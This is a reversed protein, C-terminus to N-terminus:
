FPSSRPIGAVTAMSAYGMAGCGGAVKQRADRIRGLMASSPNTCNLLPGRGLVLAQVEPQESRLERAARDDIRNEIVFREIDSPSIGARNAAQPLGHGMPLGQPASAIPIGMGLKCTAIRGMLAASPNLSDNLPGRDLVATQVDPSEGKLSAAAKEDLRNELIFRHVDDQTVPGMRPASSPGDDSLGGSNLMQIAKLAEEQLRSDEITALSANPASSAPIALSSEQVQQGQLSPIAVPGELLPSSTITGAAPRSQSMEIAAKAVKIRGMLAASPNSCNFLAGQAMVSKQVEPPEGKLCLIASQDLRNELMFKDLDTLGPPGPGQIGVPAPGPPIPMPLAPAISVPGPPVVGGNREAVTRKADRIRGILAASPNVCVSLPGRDLVAYIVEMAERKLDMAAPTDIRNEQVFKDVDEDLMDKILRVEDLSRNKGYKDILSVASSGAQLM